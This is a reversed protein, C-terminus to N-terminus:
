AAMFVGAVVAVLLGLLPFASLSYGLTRTKPDSVYARLYIFRGVVYVAGAAAVWVPSWYRAALYMAPVMPVLLELTNMQVRYYREFTEHGTVAPAHVGYRGRAQGVLVGFWIYQAIAVATVLDLWNM